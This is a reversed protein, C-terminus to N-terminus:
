FRVTLGGIVRKPPRVVLIEDYVSSDAFGERFVNRVAVLMEWESSLFNMFPLGQNVQVDFRYGVGPGPGEGDDRVFASNFRYFVVVRTATVPVESELSATVDHLRETGTRVASPAWAALLALDAGPAADGWEALAQGYTVAGRLHAALARSLSLSWGRIAVDGATGVFYHGLDTAPGDPTRLGFLTVAQDDVRQRFARVGITTDGLDRDVGLEFHDVGETRFGAASLPAFTRQPPVWQAQSPPLFEEAGPASLQRTAVAHVRMVPSLRITASLRPSFLSPEALYDYHAYAAGYGISVARSVAWEDYAYLAGVNRATEPLAALAVTNGGNYRQLGYSMGFTYRHRAAARTAYRGAIVWSSLDGQNLAAKVTWDGHQGVPAGVAFYAIQSARNLDFIQGPDDFAGTTLLNVEGQFPTDAFFASALRASEGFARGIRGFSDGLVGSDDDDFLGTTGSDKLVSRKLHRLRWATEGEDREGDALAAVTDLDPAGIGATAVDPNAPSAARRMTFSSMTRGSPHVDVLSNRAPLYGPLHARVLYPGAPLSTLTYRGSPDTIAFGTGGGLASVVVGDLPKGAEDLVVGAISGTAVAAVQTVAPTVPGDPARQAAAAAPHLATLSVLVAPVVLSSPFGM